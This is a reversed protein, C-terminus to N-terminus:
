AAPPMTSACLTFLPIVLRHSSADHHGPADFDIRVNQSTGRNIVRWYVTRSIEKARNFEKVMFKM